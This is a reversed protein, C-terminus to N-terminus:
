LKYFTKANEGFCKQMEAEGWEQPLAHLLVNIVDDYEAALLCVPWDSGYMVRDPGFAQIVKQVYPVFHEKKWNQHDAETVMGSLKCYLRPFRALKEIQKEWPDMRGEAIPPKGLHDLVGRLNPVQNLMEILIDLQSSVVLLDVPVDEQEFFKLAEIFQPKLVQSPDSMDQIMIRFGVYKPHKSFERHHDWWHPDALDLYGVVGLITEEQDALELIFRTEEITPAAQVLITGDLQHKQLHPRLHEPLFDRYLVPLEPTIWGYDGREIRWYHQHADIRVM